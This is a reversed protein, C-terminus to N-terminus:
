EARLQGRLDKMVEFIRCALAPADEPVPGEPPIRVAVQDYSISVMGGSETVLIPPQYDRDKM